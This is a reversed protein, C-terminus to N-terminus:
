NAAISAWVGLRYPDMKGNDDSLNGTLSFLQETYVEHCLHSAVQKQLGHLAASLLQAAQVRAGAARRKM